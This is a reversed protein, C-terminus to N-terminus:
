DHYIYNLFNNITEAFSKSNYKLLYAKLKDKNITNKIEEVNFRLEHIDKETTFHRHFYLYDLIAKERDAIKFTFNKFRMIEYGFFLSLKINSYVFVDTKTKFKNTKRTSISTVAFTQEPIFNYHRLASELSIYSPEYIKNAISFSTLENIELDSL